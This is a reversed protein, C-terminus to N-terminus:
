SGQSPRPYSVQAPEDLTDYTGVACLGGVLGCLVAAAVLLIWGSTGLTGGVADQLASGSFFFPLGCMSLLTEPLPRGAPSLRRERRRATPVPRLSILVMAPVVAIASAGFALFAGGDIHDGRGARVAIAIWEISGLVLLLRPAWFLLGRGSTHGTDITVRRAYLRM